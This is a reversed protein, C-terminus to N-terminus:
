QYYTNYQNLGYNTMANIFYGNRFKLYGQLKNDLAYLEFDSYKSNIALEFINRRLRRLFPKISIDITAM